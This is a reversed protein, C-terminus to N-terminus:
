LGTTLLIAALEDDIARSRQRHPALTRGANVLHGNHDTDDDRLAVEVRNDLPRMRFGHLVETFQAAGRAGGTIGWTVIGAPKGHWEAYLFDMANKLVGPYGWNYQPFVFVFGDFGSVAASWRRTHAHEYRGYAAPVPEDMMPLGADALDLIEYHMPSNEQLVDTVWRAITPSIRGPRTSGIVVAVRTTRKDKM